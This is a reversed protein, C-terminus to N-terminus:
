CRHGPSASTNVIAHQSNVLTNVTKDLSVHLDRYLM